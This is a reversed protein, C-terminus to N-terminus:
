SATGTLKHSPLRVFSSSLSPRDVGPAQYCPALVVLWAGAGGCLAGICGVLNVTTVSSPLPLPSPLLLQLLATLFISAVPLRNLLPPALFLASTTIAPPLLPPLLPYCFSTSSLRCLCRCCCSTQLLLPPHHHVAAGSGLGVACVALLVSTHIAGGLQALWCPSIVM